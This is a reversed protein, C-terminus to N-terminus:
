HPNSTRRDAEFEMGIPGADSTEENLVMVIPKDYKEKIRVPIKRLGKRGQEFRKALGFGLAPGEMSLQIGGIM